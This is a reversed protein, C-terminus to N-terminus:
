NKKEVRKKKKEKRKERPINNGDVFILLVFMYCFGWFMFSLVPNLNYDVVFLANFSGM